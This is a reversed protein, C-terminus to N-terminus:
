TDSGRDNVEDSECDRVIEPKFVLGCISDDAIIFQFPPYFQLM